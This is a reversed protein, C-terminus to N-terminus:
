YARQMLWDCPVSYIVSPRLCRLPVELVFSSTVTWDSEGKNQSDWQTIQTGAYNIGCSIVPVNNNGFNKGDVCFLFGANEFVEAKFLTIPISRKRSPNTHVTPRFTSIFSRKWIGGAYRPLSLSFFNLWSIQFLNLLLISTLPRM